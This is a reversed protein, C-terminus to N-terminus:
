GTKHIIALGAKIKDRASQPTSGGTGSGGRDPQPPTTTKVKSLATEYIKLGAEDYEALDEPKLGYKAAVAERKTQLLEKQYKEANTKHTDAELKVKEFDALKTKAETLEKELAERVANAQTAAQFHTNSQSEITSLKTTLDQVQAVAANYTALQEDTIEPM